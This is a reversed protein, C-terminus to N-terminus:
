SLDTSCDADQLAHSQVDTECTRKTVLPYYSLKGASRGPESYEFWGSRWGPSLGQVKGEGALRASGHVTGLPDRKEPM